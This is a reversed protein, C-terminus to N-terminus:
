RLIATTLLRRFHAPLASRLTPPHVGEKGEADLCGANQGDAARSAHGDADWDRLAGNVAMVPM